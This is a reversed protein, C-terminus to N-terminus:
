GGLRMYNHRFVLPFLDNYGALLCSFSRLTPRVSILDGYLGRMAGKGRERQKYARFGAEGSSKSYQTPRSTIMRAKSKM